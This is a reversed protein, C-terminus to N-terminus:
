RTRQVHILLTKNQFITTAKPAIYLSDSTPNLPSLWFHSQWDNDTTQKKPGGTASKRGWFGWGVEGVMSWILSEELM